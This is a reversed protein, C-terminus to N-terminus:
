VLFQRLHTALNTDSGAIGLKKRIQERQRAVTSPSVHRIRAIEKTTLHDCIM